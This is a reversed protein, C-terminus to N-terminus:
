ELPVLAARLRSVDVLDVQASHIIIINPAMTGKSLLWQAINGMYVEMKPPLLDGTRSGYVQYTVICGPM